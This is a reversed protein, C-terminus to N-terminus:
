AVERRDGGAAMLAAILRLTDADVITPPLGAAVRERRQRQIFEDVTAPNM